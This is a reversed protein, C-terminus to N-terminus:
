ILYCNQSERWFKNM